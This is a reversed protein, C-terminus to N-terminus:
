NEGSIRNLLGALNGTDNKQGGRFVGALAAITIATIAVIPTVALLVFLRDESPNETLLTFVRWEVYFLLATVAMALWITIRRM